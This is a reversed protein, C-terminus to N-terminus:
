GQCKSCCPHVGMCVLVGRSLDIGPTVESPVVGESTLRFATQEVISAAADAANKFKNQTMPVGRQRAVIGFNLRERSAVQAIPTVLKATM